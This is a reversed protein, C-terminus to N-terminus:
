STTLFQENFRQMISIECSMSLTFRAFLNNKKPLTPMFSNGFPVDSFSTKSSKPCYYTKDNTKRKLPGQQMTPSAKSILDSAAIQEPTSLEQELEDDLILEGDKNRGM